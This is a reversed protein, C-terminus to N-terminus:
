SDILRQRVLRARSLRQLDDRLRTLRPRKRTLFEGTLGHHGLVAHAYDGARWVSMREYSLLSWGLRRALEDLETPHVDRDVPQIEDPRHKRLWKLFEPTPFTAILRTERKAIRRILDQLAPLDEEAIHEIVDILLILDQCPVDIGDLNEVVDFSINAFGGQGEAFLKRGISISRPSLDLGTISAEPWKRAARWCIEGIGCGLDLVSHPSSPAFAEVTRWAADIRADGRVFRRINLDAQADYFTAVNVGGLNPM